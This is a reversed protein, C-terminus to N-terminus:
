IKTILYFFCSKQSNHANFRLRFSPCGAIKTKSYSELPKPKYFDRRRRWTWITVGFNILLIAYKPINIRVKGAKSRVESFRKWQIYANKPGLTHIQQKNNPVLHRYWTPHRHLCLYMTESVNWVYWRVKVTSYTRYYLYTDKNSLNQYQQTLIDTLRWNDTLIRARKLAISLKFRLKSFYSESVVTKLSAFILVM